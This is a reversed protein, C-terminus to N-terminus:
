KNVKEAYQLFISEKIKYLEEEEVKEVVVAPVFGPNKERIHELLDADTYEGTLLFTKTELAPPNATVNVGTVTAKVSKITRTIFREKSM